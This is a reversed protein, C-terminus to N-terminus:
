TSISDWWGIQSQRPGCEGLGRHRNPQTSVRSRRLEDWGGPHQLRFRDRYRNLMTLLLSRRGGHLFFQVRAVDVHDQGRFGFLPATLFALLEHVTCPPGRPTPPLTASAVACM